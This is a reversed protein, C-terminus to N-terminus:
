VYITDVNYLCVDDDDDDDDDDGDDGDDDDDDGDGDGDGDDDGDDDDDDDDNDDDSLQPCSVRRPRLRWPRVLPVGSTAESEGSSGDYLVLPYM